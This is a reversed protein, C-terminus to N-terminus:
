KKQISGFLKDALPGTVPLPQVKKAAANLIGLVMLAIVGLSFLLSVYMIFHMMLTLINLVVSMAFGAIMLTLAQKAHYLSFSNNRQVLVIISVILGVLPVYSLIAMLKGQETEADSGVNSPNSMDSM